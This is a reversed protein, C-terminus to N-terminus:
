GVEFAYLEGCQLDSCSLDLPDLQCINILFGFNRFVNQTADVLFCQCLLCICKEGANHPCLAVFLIGNGVSWFVM